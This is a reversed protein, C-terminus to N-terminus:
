LNINQKFIHITQFSLKFSSDSTNISKNELIKNLRSIGADEKINVHLVIWAGKALKKDFIVCAMCFYIAHKRLSIAHCSIRKMM